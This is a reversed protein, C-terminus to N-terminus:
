HNRTLVDCRPRPQKLPTRLDPIRRVHRAARPPLLQPLARAVLRSRTAFSGGRIVRHDGFWPASYDAYPDAAFGPIRCSTARRGNGSTASSIRSDQTRPTDRGGPRRARHDLNADDRPPPPRGRCIGMRGRDAASPGGVRLVGGGRARQRPDRARRGGAAAMPRVAAAALARRRPALVRSARCPARHAVRQRGAVVVRQARTAGTPSSRRSSPTPRRLARGDRVAGRRRRPGSRTTSCSAARAAGARDAGLAFTGGAFAVDRRRRHWPRPAVPVAPPYAPPRPLALTQLTMLLAEDHMDEHYLALEFFYRIATARAALAELTDASRRTSTPTSATGIPLPLTWRTAHPVRSSDWWADADPCGRRRARAARITRGTAAAGSSRSGASTASRGARRTSVTPWRRSRTSTRADPARLHAEYLRACRRPRPWAVREAARRARRDHHGARRGHRAGCRGTRSSTM